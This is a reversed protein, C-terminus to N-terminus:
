NQKKKNLNVIEKTKNNNKLFQMYLKKYQPNTDFFSEPNDEKNLDIWSITSVYKSDFYTSKTKQFKDKSASM